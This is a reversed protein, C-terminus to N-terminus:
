RSGFRECTPPTPGSAPVCGRASDRPWRASNSADIVSLVQAALSAAAYHGHDDYAQVAMGDFRQQLERLRELQFAIASEQQHYHQLFPNGKMEQKVAAVREKWSREGIERAFRGYIAPIDRAHVELALMSALFTELLPYLVHGPQRRM